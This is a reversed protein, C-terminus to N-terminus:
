SQNPNLRTRPLLIRRTGIQLMLPQFLPSAQPSNPLQQTCAREPWLLLVASYLPRPTALTSVECWHLTSRPRHIAVESETNRTANESADRPYLLRAQSGM